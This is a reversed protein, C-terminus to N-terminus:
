MTCFVVDNAGRSSRAAGVEDTGVEPARGLEYLRAVNRHTVRRALKVESRFRTELDPFAALDARIVKLAVMEDLERDRARYVEGMGGQGILDLVDYRTALTRGALRGRPSTMSVITSTSGHKVRHM